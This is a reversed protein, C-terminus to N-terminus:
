DMTFKSNYIKLTRRENKEYVCEVKRDRRILNAVRGAPMPLNAHSLVTSKLSM